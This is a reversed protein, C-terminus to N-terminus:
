QRALFRFDCDGWALLFVSFTKVVAQESKRQSMEMLLMMYVRTIVSKEKIMRRWQEEM